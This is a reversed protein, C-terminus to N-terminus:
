VADMRWSFEENTKAFIARFDGQFDDFNVFDTSLELNCGCTHAIPRRAFGKVGNFTIEIERTSCVCSGTVFRMFLRLDEQQMNGIMLRLYDCIRSEQQSCLVPFTFLSLVKESSVALKQYIQTIDSPSKTSWFQKHTLPVGSNIMAIGAAPKTLFEYRAVQEIVSLLTSPTPLLRCGFRSLTAMLEEHLSSPFSDKNAYSLARKFTIRELASVYDMFTDLLVEASVSVSPGLLFATLTPLAVRLPFDGAVLYGHSLVRGIIPLVTMDTQPHIMPTLLTSGEFLSTYAKEWFASFMDRHVGGDDVAKEGAFKINIPCEGVIEGERYMDVVDEYVNGRDIIRELGEVANVSKMYNIYLLSM